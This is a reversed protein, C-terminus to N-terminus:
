DDWDDASSDSDDDSSVMAVRRELIAAVNFNQTSRRRVEKRDRIGREIAQLIENGTYHSPSLKVPGVVSPPEKGDICTAPGPVASLSFRKFRTVSEPAPPPTPAKPLARPPVPPPVKRASIRRESPRECDTLTSGSWCSDQSGLRSRNAAGASSSCSVGGHFSQQLKFGGSSHSVALPSSPSPLGALASSSGTKLNAHALGASHYRKLSKQVALSHGDFSLSPQSKQIPLTSTKYASARPVPPPPPAPPVSGSPAVPVAVTKPPSSDERLHKLSYGLAGASSVSTTRSSGTDIGSDTPPDTVTVHDECSEEEPLDPEMSEKRKAAKRRFSNRLFSGKRTLGERKEKEDGRGAAEERDKTSRRFSQRLGSFTFRRKIKVPAPVLILCDEDQYLIEGTTRDLQHHHARPSPPTVPLPTAPLPTVPTPQRPPLGDTELTPTAPAPSTVLTSQSGLPPVASLSRPPMAFNFLEFVAKRNHDKLSSTPLSDFRTPMALLDVKHRRHIRSEPNLTELLLDPSRPKPPSANGNAPTAEVDVSPDRDTAVAATSRRTSALRVSQSWHHFFFSPDSITKEPDVRYDQLLRFEKVPPIPDASQYTITLSESAPERLIAQQFGDQRNRFHNQALQFSKGSKVEREVDFSAVRERARELRQELKASRRGFDEVTNVVSCIIEESHKALDAIQRILNALTFTTTCSLEDTKIGAPLHRCAVVTPQVQRARIPM